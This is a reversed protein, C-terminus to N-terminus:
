KDSNKATQLALERTLKAIKEEFARKWRYTSVVYSIFVFTVLYTLLEAGNGVGLYVALRSWADKFILSGFGAFIFVVFLLRRIALHRTTKGAVLYFGVSMLFGAIIWRMIM